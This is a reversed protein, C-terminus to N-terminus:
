IIKKRIISVPIVLTRLSTGVTLQLMRKRRLYLANGEYNTPIRQEPVDVPLIFPM